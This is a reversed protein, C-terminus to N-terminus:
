LLLMMALIPIWEGDVSLEVLLRRCGKYSWSFIILYSYVVGFLLGRIYELFFGNHFCFTVWILLLSNIAYLLARTRKVGLVVPLSKVGSAIDGELDCFDCLITNILLQIFIYVFVLFVRFSDVSYVSAPLIAGTIGWALAVTLSKAGNVEKLRLFWPFLKVSYVIAAMFSLLVVLLAGLDVAASIALCLGASALSPLLFYKPDMDSIEPRNVSDEARDTIKNMNYVSFTALFSVSLISPNITIRYLLSSFVVVLLSNFALYVSTSTIKKLFGTFALWLSIQVDTSYENIEEEFIM